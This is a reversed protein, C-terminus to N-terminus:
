LREQEEELVIELDQIQDQLAQIQLAIDARQQQARSYRLIESSSPRPVRAALAAEIKRREEASIQHRLGDLVEIAKAWFQIRQEADQADAKTIGGLYAIHQHTPKGKVRTNKALIAAWHESSRFKTKARQQWRVFMRGAYLPTAHHALAALVPAKHAVSWAM